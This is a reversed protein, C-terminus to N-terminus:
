RQDEMVKNRELIKVRAPDFVVYNTTGRGVGRSGRDLYRLGSIGAKRLADSAAASGLARELNSYFAAVSKDSMDQDKSVAGRYLAAISKQIGKGQEKLPKDWDLMKEVDEDPIDVKYVNGQIRAPPDELHKLTEDVEAKIPGPLSPEDYAVRKKLLEKARAKDGGAKNLWYNLDGFKQENMMESLDRAYSEGVAPNESFYMGHGYAQAGEGTGIKSSIFEGLPNDPTPTFEHPTGHYGIARIGGTTGSILDKAARVGGAPIMFGMTGEIIQEPSQGPRPIMQSLLSALSSAYGPIPQGYMDDKAVPGSLWHGIARM